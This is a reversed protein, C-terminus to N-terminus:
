DGPLRIGAQIRATEITELVDMMVDLRAYLADYDDALALKALGRAEYYM